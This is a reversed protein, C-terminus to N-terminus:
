GRWRRRAARLPREQPTFTEECALLDNLLGALVRPHGGVGKRFVVDNKLDAYTVGTSKCAERSGHWLAGRTSDDGPTGRLGTAPDDRRIAALRM